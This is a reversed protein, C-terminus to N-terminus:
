VSVANSGDDCGFTSAGFPPQLSTTKEALSDSSQIEPAPQDDHNLFEDFHSDEFVGDNNHALNDFFHDFQNAAPLVRNDLFDLDSQSTPPNLTQLHLRQSIHTHSFHHLSPFLAKPTLGPHPVLQVTHGRGYHLQFTAEETASSDFFVPQRKSLIPGILSSLPLLPASSSSSQGTTHGM